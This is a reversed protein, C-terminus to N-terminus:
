FLASDPEIRRVVFNAILLLTAGVVSQYLAAAATMGIDGTTTLGNYIYTDLVSTVQYLAGSNRPIIYFLGFDARFIGGINLILLVTMMPIIQPITVNKIQQWKNAGDVMAAEYYTPDIGMVSAYYIISNYGLGKWVNLFVFIFPWWRPDAFWNIATGGGDTIWSNVIGKSPSLFAYVFYDIVAWSLFYPLLTLTHYVKVTKKNRLESMVIAFSIAFFLNFALFVVNYLITNRTILWADSSAFLFKFNDFGVWPSTILSDLFGNPSYHFNKFAVVNTLVPIYFFFIFWIMGPLAMFILAKYRWAQYFFGKKKKKM